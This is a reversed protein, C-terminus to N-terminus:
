SWTPSTLPVSRTDDILDDAMQRVLQVADEKRGLRVLFYALRENPIVRKSPQRSSRLWTYCSQRIFEDAQKPYLEAVRRLRHQSTEAKEMFDSWGGLDRQAKVVIPFARKKGKLRVASEFAQDLVKELDNRSLDDQDLFPRLAELLEADHGLDSWYAYWLPLFRHADFTGSRTLDNLLSQLDSPPYDQPAGVFKAGFHESSEGEAVTPAIPEDGLQERAVRLLSASADPQSSEADSLQDLAQRPLGTAAISELLPSQLDDLFAASLASDAHWWEGASVHQAYKRALRGRDLKGLLDDAYRSAHRTEDGDTYQTIHHIQPAISLLISLSEEPEIECIHDIAELLTIVNVDKRWGYAVVFEWCQRLLVRALDPLDHLLAIECLELNLEAAENTQLICGAAKDTGQKLVLQAAEDSLWLVGDAAYKSRFSDLDFWANASLADLDSASIQPSGDLKASVVQLGLAVDMLATRLLKYGYHASPNGGDPPVIPTLLEYFERFGVREGKRLRNGAEEAIPLLENLYEVVETRYTSPTSAYEIWSYEDTATMASLVAGFFWEHVFRRLSEGYVDQEWASTLRPRELLPPGLGAITKWVGIISSHRFAAFRPDADVSVSHLAAVTLVADEVVKKRSRPGLRAHLEYLRDLDQHRALSRAFAEILRLDGNNFVGDKQIRAVDITELEAFASGLTALESVMSARTYGAAFRSDTQHRRLAEEGCIRATIAEGRDLLSQGLVALEVPQLQARSAYAETLVAEDRSLRWSCRKLRLVDEVQFEPGNLLRTKLHRLRNAIPYQRNDFSIAEAEAILEIPTEIPYGDTLRDLTWDRTLGSILPEPRGLRAQVLWLWTNRLRPPASDRLWTEVRVGLDQTRQVYGDTSQVYVVLSDHFPVVGAATSHLLHEIAKLDRLTCGQVLQSGVFADSPWHFRYEALLILVDRQLYSLNHWLSTYYTRADGGLDGPVQDVSWKSLGKGNNILQESAYIVHLPHGRTKMHLQQSAEVLDDNSSHRLALRGSGLLTKLYDMVALESMPPLERWHTRGSHVLLIEPLQEDSVPQTGIILVVNDAVPLLKSFIDTLPRIDHGHERWVHDLGDMVVVFPKGLKKYHVGCAEVAKYLDARESTDTQVQPHAHSIQGLLSETVIYPTLRDHTRDARSLFYHHRIVPVGGEELDGCLRSLYTSKGRGPPGAVTFVSQTKGQIDALLKKHFAEDPVRYGRPVAFSEPIPEPRRSSVVGDIEELTIWGDPAPEDELFAWAKARAILREVGSMDTHRLLRDHVDSGLSLYNKDSHRIRIVDLFSQLEQRSPFQKDLELLVSPPAKSIDLCEGGALCMEIEADPVRNTILQATGLASRDIQGLADFWKRLNSRARDTKGEIHLLWEWTLIHEYPNPTFKVQWYDTLGDAREAVIDDLSQPAVGKDTCEFRVRRYRQPADLWEAVLLVGHLVQYDFGVSTIATAKVRDQAMLWSRGEDKRSVDPVKV